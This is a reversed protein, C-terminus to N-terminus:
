GMWDPDTIPLNSNPIKHISIPLQRMKRAEQMRFETLTTISHRRRPIFPKVLQLKGTLISRCCLLYSGCCLCEIGPLNFQRALEDSNPDFGCAKYFELIRNDESTHHVLYQISGSVTLRPLGHVMEDLETMPNAGDPLRSWYVEPTRCLGNDLTQYQRMFLYVPVRNDWQSWALLTSLPMSILYTVCDVASSHVLYHLFLMAPCVLGSNM